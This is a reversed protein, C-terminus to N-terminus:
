AKGSGGEKQRFHAEGPRESRRVRPRQESALKKSLADGVVELLVADVRGMGAGRRRQGVAGSM